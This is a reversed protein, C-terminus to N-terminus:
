DQQEKRHPCQMCAGDCRDEEFPCNDAHKAREEASMQQRCQDIDQRDSLKVILLEKLRRIFMFLGQPGMAAAGFGIALHFDCPSDPAFHHAVISATPGIVAGACGSILLAISRQKWNREKCADGLHYFISALAAAVAFPLWKAFTYVLDTADSQNQPDIQMTTM